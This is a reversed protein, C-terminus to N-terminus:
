VGPPKRRTGELQRVFGSAAIGAAGILGILYGIEFSIESNPEGPKGFVIGNCFILVFATLGVIATVEGPRWGLAHGRAIIYALIFPASCAAVLLWDLSVYTDFATLEGRKGDISAQNNDTNTSFWPLFLSVFLVAAALFGLYEARQLRGVDLFPRREARTAEM